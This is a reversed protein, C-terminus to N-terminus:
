PLYALPDVAGGNIWLEFHLHTGTSHGTCGLAGVPEGQAVYDGTQVYVDSMHGYVSRSGNPHSIVVYRGLGNYLNEVKDVVGEAVALVPAGFYGLGGVDIATHVYGPREEGYYTTIPGYFPWVYGDPSPNTYAWQADADQLLADPPVAEPLLVVTGKKADEASDLDNGPYAIVMDVTTSYRGAVEALTEGERMRYVIGRYGPLLMEDGVILQDEEERDPNNWLIHDPCMGFAEAISSLSDGSQIAYMMWAPQGAIFPYARAPPTPTVSPSPTPSPTAARAEKQLARLEPGDSVVPEPEPPAVPPNLYALVEPAAQADTALTDGSATRIGLGIGLILALALFLAHMVYRQEAPGRAEGYPPDDYEEAYDGAVSFEPEASEISEDEEDFQVHRLNGAAPVSEEPEDDIAEDEVPVDPAAGALAEAVPEDIPEEAPEEAPAEAPPEERRQTPKIGLRSSIGMVDGLLDGISVDELESALSGEENEQKAERFVDLLDSGLDPPVGGAAGEAPAGALSLADAADAAMADAQIGALPDPEPLQSMGELPDSDQDGPYVQQAYQGAPEVEQRSRMRDMMEERALARPDRPEYESRKRRGGLGLMRFLSM